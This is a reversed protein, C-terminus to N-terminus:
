LQVARGMLVHRQGCRALGHHQELVLSRQQRQFFGDVGKRHDAGIGIIHLHQQGIVVPKGAPRDRRQLTQAVLEACLLHEVAPAAIPRDIHRHQFRDGSRGQECCQFSFLTVAQRGFVKVVDLQLSFRNKGAQILGNIEFPPLSRRIGAEIVILETDAPGAFQARRTGPLIVEAPETHVAVPNKEVVAQQELVVMFMMRQFDVVFDM